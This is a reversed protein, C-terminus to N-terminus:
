AVWLWLLIVRFGFGFWIRFQKCVIFLNSTAYICTYCIQWWRSRSSISVACSVLAIYYPWAWNRRPRSTQDSSWYKWSRDPCNSNAIYSSSCWAPLFCPDFYAISNSPCDYIHPRSTLHAINHGYISCPFLLTSFISCCSRLHLKCLLDISSKLVRAISSYPWLPMWPLM